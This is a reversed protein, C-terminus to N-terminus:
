LLKSPRIIAPLVKFGYVCSEILPVDQWTTKTIILPLAMQRAQDARPEYRPVLSQLSKLHICVGEEIFPVIQVVYAFLEPHASYLKGLKEM